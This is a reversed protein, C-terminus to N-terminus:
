LEKKPSWGNWKKIASDIELEITSSSRLEFLVPGDYGRTKLILKLAPWDVAGQGLKTDIMGSHYQKVHVMSIRNIEIERAVQESLFGEGALSLNAPDLCYWLNGSDSQDRAKQFLGRFRDWKQTAHEVTLRINNRFLKDALGALTRSTIAFEPKGLSTPTTLDVIRLEPSDPQMTQIAPIAADLWAESESWDGFFALPMAYNLRVEPLNDSLWELKKIVLRDSIDELDGCSGQRLEIHCLGTAVSKEVLRMLSDGTQLLDTWCNSVIGLKDM